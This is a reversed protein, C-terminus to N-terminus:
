KGLAYFEVRLGQPSSGPNSGDTHYYVTVMTEHFYNISYIQSSSCFRGGSAHPSIYLGDDPDLSRGALVQVYDKSCGISYCNHLVCQLTLYPALLYKYQGQLTHCLIM